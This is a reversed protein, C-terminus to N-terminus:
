FIRRRSKCKRDIEGVEWGEGLDAREGGGREYM